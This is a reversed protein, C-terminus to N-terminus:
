RQASGRAYSPLYTKEMLRVAEEEGYLVNNNQPQASGGAGASEEAQGSRPYFAFGVRKSRASPKSRAPRQAGSPEQAQTAAQTQPPAYKKASPMAPEKDQGKVPKRARASREARSPGALATGQARSYEGARATRSGEAQAGPIMSEQEREQEREQEEIKKQEQAAEMAWAAEQAEVVRQVHAARLAHASRQAAQSSSPDGGAQQQQQQQQQPPPPPPPVLVLLREWQKDTLELDELRFVSPALLPVGALDYAMEAMRMNALSDEASVWAGYPSIGRVRKAFADLQYMPATWYPKPKPLVAGDDDAAAAAAANGKDNDSDSDEGLPEYAKLTKARKVGRLPRQSPMDHLVGLEEVRISHSSPAGDVYRLTVTRTVGMQVNPPLPSPIDIAVHRHKVVITVGADTALRPWLGGMTKRTRLAGIMEGVAGGPFEWTLAYRYPRENPSPLSGVLIESRICAVPDVGYIARMMSLAYTLDGRAGGSQEFRFRLEKDAEFNTPLVVTIKVHVIHEREINREFELWSPHFRYPAVELLVPAYISQVFPANFLRDADDSNAMAPADLMVHKGKALARITWELNLAPRLAILVIDIQPDELLDQYNTYAKRISYRQRWDQCTQWNNCAIAHVIVDPHYVAPAILLTFVSQGAGLIGFKLADKHKEPVFPPKIWFRFIRRASVSLEKRVEPKLISRM